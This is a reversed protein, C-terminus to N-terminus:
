ELMMNRDGIKAEYVVYIYWLNQIKQIRQIHTKRLCQINNNRIEHVRDSSVRFCVTECVHRVGFASLVVQSDPSSPVLDQEAAVVKIYSRPFNM